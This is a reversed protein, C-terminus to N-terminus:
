SELVLQLINETLLTLLCRSSGLLNCITFGRITHHYVPVMCNVVKVPSTLLVNWLSQLQLWESSSGVLVGCVWKKPFRYIQMWSKVRMELVCNLTLDVHTSVM